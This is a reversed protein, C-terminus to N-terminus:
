KELSIKKKMFDVKFMNAISSMFAMGMLHEGEIFTTEVKKDGVIVYGYYIKVMISQGNALEFSDYGVFEINLRNLISSPLAIGETFGTDATIPIVGGPLFELICNKNIKANFLPIKDKISGKLVVEM